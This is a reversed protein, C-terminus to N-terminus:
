EIGIDFMAELDHKSFVKFAILTETHTIADKNAIDGSILEALRENSEARIMAVLDYRGAVSFVETIGEMGALSEGVASSSGRKVNMLVLASVM